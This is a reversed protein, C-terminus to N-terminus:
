NPHELSDWKQKLFAIEAELDDARQALDGFRTLKTVADIMARAAALALLKDSSYILVGMREIADVLKTSAKGCAEGIIRNRLTFVQGRFHAYKLRRFATKESIGVSAAAVRVTDGAALRMALLSDIERIGRGKHSDKESKELSRDSEDDKSM